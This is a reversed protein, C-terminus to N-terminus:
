IAQISRCWEIKIVKALLAMPIGGDQHSGEAFIRDMTLM